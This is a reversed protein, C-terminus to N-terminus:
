QPSQQQSPDANRVEAKLPAVEPKTWTGTVRYEFTLVQGLPNKLVKDLIFAGLGWIPNVVVALISSISNGVSPKVSVHLNQTERNLDVEGSMTVEASPGQMHFEKASLVGNAITARTSITDFAFGRGFLERFDLTILSQLSLIGILKAAGPEAKLFQGKQANLLLNGSLTAYDISQPSGVWSLDGELQATGRRVTGPYGMRDLYKGVDGVELKINKLNVNPQLAKGQWVGGKVTLTSEPGTLVLKEINWDLAQNVAVLELKGLNNDNLILNDAVIDLAPLDRLPADEKKGPTAEPLTFRKLRAVIRGRGESRSIIEGELEKASINATWVSASTSARLAVDNLRRGGFDLAAIKLDLAPSFSSDGKGGLSERWRDADAYPLSGTVTLGERDSLVAPENLSIVGRDVVYAPGDRRRQIAAEVARGLSVKITDTRAPGPDIVREFRLPMPEVATKGLPPPLDVAVGSLQSQVIFTVPRGHAGTITGQWATAGSVRQLLGEGWARPIQAASATGQANVAIM